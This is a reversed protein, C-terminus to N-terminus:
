DPAAPLLAALRHADIARHVKVRQFLRGAIDPSNGSIANELGSRRSTTDGFEPIRLYRGTQEGHTSDTNPDRSAIARRFMRILRCRRSDGPPAGELGSVALSSSIVSGRSIIAGFGSDNLFRTDRSCNRAIALRRKYCGSKIENM